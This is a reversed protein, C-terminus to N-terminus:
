NETVTKLYKKFEEGIDERSIGLKATAKLYGLVEGCDLLEGDFEYAYFEKQGLLDRIADTLQIEGGSGQQTQKLQDFIERPLIYRGVVALNSPANQPGPKEVIDVIRSVKPDDTEEVKVIGYRKQGEEDTKRVAIVAGGYKEHVAMMQKMCPEASDIVDDPLFVAFYDDEILGDAMLVAHGLGLPPQKQRVFVFKAIDAIDRVQKLLDSKGKQELASELEFSADFHNEISQKGKGTIMVMFGIGSDAAEEVGYQIIPKDLLPLMEKPQAKTAPLFRTGLGAVPFVAKTIKM